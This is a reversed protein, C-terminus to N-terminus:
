EMDSHSWEENQCRSCLLKNAWNLVLHATLEGCKPCLYLKGKYEHEAILKDEKEKKEADRKKREAEEREDQLRAEIEEPDNPDYHQM